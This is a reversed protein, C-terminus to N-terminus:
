YDNGPEDDTSRAPGAAVPKEPRLCIQVAIYHLTMVSNNAPELKAPRASALPNGFIDDRALGADRGSM